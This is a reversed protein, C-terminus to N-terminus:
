FNVVSTNRMYDISCKGLFDILGCCNLSMQLTDIFDKSKENTLYDNMNKGFKDVIFDNDKQEFLCEVIIVFVISIVCFWFFLLNM